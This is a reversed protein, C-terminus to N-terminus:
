ARGRVVPLDAAQWQAIGGGLVSVKTFGAKILRKAAGGAAMGNRCVVVVPRDKVRGLDKHEPDFQSPAVHRSGPIHAKEFDGSASIDIVLANERNILATLQAPTVERYGRTFRAAFSVVIAVTLGVFALVLVLQQSIFEPLREM